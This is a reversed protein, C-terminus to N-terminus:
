AHGPTGSLVAEILAESDAGPLVGEAVGSLRGDIALAHVLGTARLPVNSYAM